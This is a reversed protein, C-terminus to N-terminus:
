EQNPVSYGSVLSQKNAYKTLEEMLEPYYTSDSLDQHLDYFDIVESLMNNLESLKFQNFILLTQYIQIDLEEFVVRRAMSESIFLHVKNVYHKYYVYKVIDQISPFDVM